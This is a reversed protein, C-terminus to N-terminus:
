TVILTMTSTSAGGQADTVVLTVTYTGPLTYAHTISAQAGQVVVGDGFAWSFSLGYGTSATGDFLFARTNGATPVVSFTAQTHPPALILKETITDSQRASDTETLTVAYTGFQAFNHQVTPATTQTSAGDGFDWAFTLSSNDQFTASFTVNLPSNPDASYALFAHPPQPYITVMQTATAQQGIPDTATLTVSFTNIAAYPHTVGRGTAKLGDGFDWTFTLARGATPTATFTLPDNVHARGSPISVGLTVAPRPYVQARTTVLAGALSLWLLAVLAVAALALWIARRPHTAAPTASDSHIM